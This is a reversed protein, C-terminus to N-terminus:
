PLRSREQRLAGVAREARRSGLMRGLNGRGAKLGGHELVSEGRHNGPRRRAAEALNDDVGVLVIAGKCGQRGIPQVAQGLDPGLAVPLEGSATADLVYEDELVTTLLHAHGQMVGVSLDIGIGEDRRHRRGLQAAVGTSAKLALQDPVLEGCATTHQDVLGSDDGVDRLGRSPWVLDMHRHARM